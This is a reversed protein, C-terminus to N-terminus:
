GVSRVEEQIMLNEISTNYIDEIIDATLKSPAGDFVIKGERIGIIRTAYEKAV